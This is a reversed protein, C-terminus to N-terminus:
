PVRFSLPLVFPVRESFIFPLTKALEQFFFAKRMLDVGYEAPSM